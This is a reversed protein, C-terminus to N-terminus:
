NVGIYLHRLPSLLMSRKKKELLLRCVLKVHSQLESTHEESRRSVNEIALLPGGDSVRRRWAARRRHPDDRERLRAALVGLRRPRASCPWRGPRRSPIQM